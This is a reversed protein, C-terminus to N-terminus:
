LLELLKRNSTLLSCGGDKRDKMIGWQVIMCRRQGSTMGM